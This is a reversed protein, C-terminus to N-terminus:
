VSCLQTVLIAVEQSPKAVTLRRMAFIEVLALIAQMAAAEVRVLIAEMATSAMMVRPRITPMSALGVTAAITPVFMATTVIATKNVLDVAPPATSPATPVLKLDMAPGM